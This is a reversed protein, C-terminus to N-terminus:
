KKQTIELNACKGMAYKVLQAYEGEEELTIAKELNENTIKIECAGLAFVLYFFLGWNLVKM